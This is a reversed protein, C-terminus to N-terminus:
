WGHVHDVQHMEALSRVPLRARLLHEGREVYRGDHLEHPLPDQKDV